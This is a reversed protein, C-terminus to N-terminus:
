ALQPHQLSGPMTSQASHSESLEAEYFLEYPSKKHLPRRLVTIKNCTFSGTFRYKDIASIRSFDSNPVSRAITLHPVFSFSRGKFRRLLLRTLTIIPEPDRILFVLSKKTKHDFTSLDALSVTFERIGSLALMASVKIMMEDQLHTMKFLSIHAMSFLNEASLGIEKHLEKKRAKINAKITEGPSILFFYEYIPSSPAETEDFLLPLKM